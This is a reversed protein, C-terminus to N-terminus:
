LQTSLFKVRDAPSAHLGLFNLGSLELRGVWDIKKKPPPPPPCKNYINVTQIRFSYSTNDVNM